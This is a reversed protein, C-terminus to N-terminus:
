PAIDTTLELPKKINNGKKKKEQSLFRIILGKIYGITTPGDVGQHLTPM